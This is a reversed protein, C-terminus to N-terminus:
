REVDPPRRKQKIEGRRKKEKLRRRKSGRTPKTQKRKKPVVLAERVQEALRERAVQRNRHQSRDDDAHVVLEGAVTLKSALKKKVRRRQEDGLAETTDVNWRLTVRSSTKNVHQGGAGGSRSMQEHLEDAPIVVGRKVHLDDGDTM